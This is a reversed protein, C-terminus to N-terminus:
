PTAVDWSTRFTEGTGHLNCVQVSVGLPASVGSFPGSGDALYWQWNVTAPTGFILGEATVKFPNVGDWQWSVTFGDGDPLATAKVNCGSQDPDSGFFLDMSLGITEGGCACDCDSCDSTSTGGAIAANNLGVTGWGVIISHLTLAVNGTFDTDLKALLDNLEGTGWQGEDNCTCFLDCVVTDWVTSTFQANYDAELVGILGVAAGIMLPVLVEAALGATMYFAILAGAFQLALGIVTTATSLGTGFAAQADQINGLANTAANCKKDDGTGPITNPLQTGTERPDNPDPIWTIGGDTSIESEGDETIRHLVQEDNCCGSMLKRALNGQWKVLNDTDIVQDSYSFWRTKWAIPDITALLINIERESLSFCCEKDSLALVADYDWQLGKFASKHPPPYNNISM